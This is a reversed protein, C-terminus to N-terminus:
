ALFVVGTNTKFYAVALILMIIWMIFGTIDAKWKLVLLMLIAAIFPLTIMFIGLWTAVM